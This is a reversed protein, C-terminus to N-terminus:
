SFALCGLRSLFLVAAVATWEGTSAERFAAEEGGQLPGAGLLTPANARQAVFSALPMAAFTAVWALMCFDFMALTGFRRLLTPMCLKLPISVAGM